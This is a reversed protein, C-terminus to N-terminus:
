VPRVRARSRRYRSFAAPEHPALFAVLRDAEERLEAMVMRPVPQFAEFAVRPRGERLEVWWLGRVLGDVLFTPLVDGNRAIVLKRFADPLIRDRKEYALLSSDWMPLLRVPAMEDGDPVPAGPLDILTRGREDRYYELDAIREAAPRLRAITLGSWQAMDAFTAPGFAALYRRVLHELGAEESEFPRDRLWAPAGVLLPRRGYSWAVEGPAHVFPAHIRVRWWFAEAETDAHHALHERLETMSRPEGAFEIARQTLAEIDPVPARHRTNHGQLMPRVAPLLSLYDETTVLHVTARMLTAKVARRERIARDLDISDFRRLRTWLGVYPSAPEQAQLGGVRELADIASLSARELLLQRALTARNLQKATLTPSLPILETRHRPPVRVRHPGANGWGVPPGRDGTGAIARVM